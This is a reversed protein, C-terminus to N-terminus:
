SCCRCAPWAWRARAGGRDGLGAHRRDAAGPRGPGPQDAAGFTQRHRARDRPGTGVVLQAESNMHAMLGRTIFIFGGPLAFANVVPDDVVKFSWPLDPRESQAALKKGLNEVYSQTAPNDYLGITQAVEEAAGKGMEIEQGESVLTFERKGTVPNTACGSILVAAM